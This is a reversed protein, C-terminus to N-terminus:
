GPAQEEMAREFEEIARRAKEDERALNIQPLVEVGANNVRTHAGPQHELDQMDIVPTDIQPEGDSRELAPPKRIEMGGGECRRRPACMLARQDGNYATGGLLTALGRRGSM